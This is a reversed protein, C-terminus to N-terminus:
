EGYITPLSAVRLDLPTNEVTITFRGDQPKTTAGLPMKALYKIRSVLGQYEAPPRSMVQHLVGDIRFRIVIGKEVPEFHVDSALETVAEALIASLLDTVNLNPIAQGAKLQNILEHLEARHKETIIVPREGENERVLLEYTKHGYAFSGPSIVVPNIKLGTMQELAQIGERVGQSEPAVVGVVLTNNERILPLCQLAEMQEKPVLKLVKEELQHNRVNLYPLQMREALQKAQAEEQARDLQLIKDGLDAM